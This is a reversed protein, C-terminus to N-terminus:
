FYHFLHFFLFFLPLPIFSSTVGRRAIPLVSIKYIRSTALIRPFHLFTSSLFLHTPLSSLFCFPLRIFARGTSRCLPADRGILPSPPWLCSRSAYGALSTSHPRSLSRRSDRYRSLSELPPPPAPTSSPMTPERADASSNRPGPLSSGILYWLSESPLGPPSSRTSGPSRRPTADFFPLVLTAQGM